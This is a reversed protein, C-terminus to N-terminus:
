WSPTTPLGLDVAERKGNPRCLGRPSPGVSSAADSACGVPGTLGAPSASPTECILIEYGAKVQGPATQGEKRGAGKAGRAAHFGCTFAGLLAIITFAFLLVLGAGHDKRDLLSM